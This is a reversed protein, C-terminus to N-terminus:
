KIVKIPKNTGNKIIQIGKQNTPVKIGSLSYVETISNQTCPNSISTDVLEDIIIFKNWGSTAEYAAKCGVPVYVFMFNDPFVSNDISQPIASFNYVYSIKYNEAFAAKGITEITSPIIVVRLDSRKYFASDAIATVTYDVGEYRVTPEIEINAFSAKRRKADIPPLGPDIANDDYQYYPYCAISVTTDSLKKYFYSGLQFDYGKSQASAEITFLSLFLVSLLISTKRNM